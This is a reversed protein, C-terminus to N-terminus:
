KLRISKSSQNFHRSLDAFSFSSSPSLLLLVEKMAVSIAAIANNHPGGQFAPFVSFNIKEELDWMIEQRFLELLRHNM